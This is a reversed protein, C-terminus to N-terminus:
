KRLHTLTKYDYIRGLTMPCRIERTRSSVQSFSSWNLSGAAIYGHWHSLVGDLSMTRYTVITDAAVPLFEGDHKSLIGPINEGDHTYAEMEYSWFFVSM